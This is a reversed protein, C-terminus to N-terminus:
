EIAGTVVSAWPTVLPKNHFGGVQRAALAAAQSVSATLVDLFSGSGASTPELGFRSISVTQVYEQKPPSCSIRCDAITKAKRQKKKKKQNQKQQLMPSYLVVLNRWSRLDIGEYLESATRGRHEVRTM